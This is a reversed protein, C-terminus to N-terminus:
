VSPYYWPDGGDFAPDRKRFGTEFIVGTVTVGCDQLLEQTWCEMGHKNKMLGHYHFRFITSDTISLLKACSGLIKLAPTIQEYLEPDIPGPRLTGVLTQYKEYPERQAQHWAQSIGDPLWEANNARAYEVAMVRAQHPTMQDFDTMRDPDTFRNNTFNKPEFDTPEPYGHWKAVHRPVPAGLFEDVYTELVDLSKRFTVFDENFDIEPDNPDVFQPELMSDDRTVPNIMYSERTGLVTRRDIPHSPGFIPDYGIEVGDDDMPNQPLYKTDTKLLEALNPDIDDPNNPDWEYEFKARLDQINWRGLESPDLADPDDSMTEDEIEDENEGYDQFYAPYKRGGGDAAEEDGDVHSLENLIREKALLQKETEIIAGPRGGTLADGLLQEDIERPRPYVPRVYDEPINNQNMNNNNDWLRMRNYQCHRCRQQM